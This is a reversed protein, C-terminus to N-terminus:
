VVGIREAIKDVAVRAAFPCSATFGMYPGFQKGAVLGVFFLGPISESEFRNTLKPFGDVITLGSVLGSLYDLRTVDVKFGTALICHDFDVAATHAGQILARYPGSPSAREVGHVVSNELVQINASRLRPYLWPELKLRGVEWFRQEISHRDPASLGAFWGPEREAQLLEGAVWSWDSEAFAPTPHRHVVTVAAAGREALLVALEFASQRGGIILCRRGSFRLPDSFSASHHIRDAPLFRLEPPLHRFPWFGPACLVTRSSISDGSEFETIFEQHNSRSIRVVRQDDVVIGSQGQFWDGYQLFRELPIPLSALLKQDSIFRSFTAENQPDLHWDYGSRLYMGKPMHEKWFSFPKGVTVADIGLARARAAAALGYPGAGVILLETKKRSPTM